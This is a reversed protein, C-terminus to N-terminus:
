KDEGFVQIMRSKPIFFLETHEGMGMSIRKEIWKNMCKGNIAGMMMVSLFEPSDDPIFRLSKVIHNMVKSYDTNDTDAVHNTFGIYCNCCIMYYPENTPLGCTDIKSLILDLYEKAEKNVTLVDKNYKINEKNEKTNSTAGKQKHPLLFPLRIHIYEAM